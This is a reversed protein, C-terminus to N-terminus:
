IDINTRTIKVNPLCDLAEQRLPIFESSMVAPINELISHYLYWKITNCGDYHKPISICMTNNM